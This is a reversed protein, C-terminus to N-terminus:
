LKAENVLLRVGRTMKVVAKLWQRKAKLKIVMVESNEKRECCM